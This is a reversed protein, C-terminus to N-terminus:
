PCSLEYGYGDRGRNLIRAGRLEECVCYIDTVHDLLYQRGYLAEAIQSATASQHAPLTELFTGIKLALDIDEASQRSEPRSGCHFGAEPAAVEARKMRGICLTHTQASHIRDREFVLRKVDVRYARLLSLVPVLAERRDKPYTLKVHGDELSFSGGAAEFAAVAESINSM